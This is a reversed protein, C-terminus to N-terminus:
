HKKIPFQSIATVSMEYTPYQTDSMQTTGVGQLVVYTATGVAKIAYAGNANATFGDSALDSIANIGVFSDGGGGLSIPKGYFQQAKAAFTTLDAIVSSRNQDVGNDQFMMIGVVAAIGVIIVGLIILLLQQQAM